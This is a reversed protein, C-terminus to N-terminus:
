KRESVWFRPAEKVKKAEEYDKVAARYLQLNRLQLQQKKSDLSNQFIARTHPDLTDLQSASILMSSSNPAFPHSDRFTAGQFPSSSSNGKTM